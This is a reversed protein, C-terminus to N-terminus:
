GREPAKENGKPDYAFIFGALLMFLLNIVSVNIFLLNELMGNLFVGLLPLTLVQFFLPTKQSFIMKVCRILLLVSFTLALLFAPLGATMLAQLLSNHWHYLKTHTLREAADVVQDTANGILLTVPRQQLVPIAAPYVVTLRNALSGVNESIHYRSVISGSTQVVAATDAATDDSVTQQSAQYRNAIANMPTISYYLGAFAGATLLICALLSALFRLWGSRLSLKRMLLIYGFGGIELSVAVMATRSLTLAIAAFLGIGAVALPLVWWKRKVAVTLYLLIGFVMSFLAGSVNPHIDLVNLRAPHSYIENIGLIMTSKPLHIPQRLIAAVVAVWAIASFVIVVTVALANLAKRRTEPKFNAALPFAIMATAVMQFITSQDSELYHDGNLIRTLVYWATFALLLIEATRFHRGRSFLWVGSFAYLIPAVINGLLVGGREPYFWGFVVALMWLLVIPLQLRHWAKNPNERMEM